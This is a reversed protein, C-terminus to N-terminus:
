RGSTIVIRTAIYENGPDNRVIVLYVGSAVKSGTYNRGDWVAQGGNARTQYVLKGSLETIKVLANDTLGRIAITGNYGPPVPNPFVLVQSNNTAGETATSRFSCIGSLTSFFVEGSVPDVAIRRVDNSFLPSNEETFRYVIKDGEPSLLWVGNKTGVWKRNAGDIAICQVIEDKFLLGAFQDLQVVPLTADCSQGNFVSSTCQVIGIGKDTCVWIFGSKDKVIYLVNNSPLNGNGSGQQYWKWKDDAANDIVPGYNYCILGNNKPCVIWLQNNDEDNIIQGAANETLPFPINFAKWAGNNKRLHLNSAAGYNSVWLNGNKDFALGSVRVSGPDGIAAQLSSNQKKYIDTTAADKFHVLGGGFSGAWLTGDTPDVAVTIFDLVSDLKPINYYGRYGWKEDAFEFVGNRNYQYNWATNVSGAAAYLHQDKFIFEGDATGLPGNPIWQETGNGTFKSLGGFQDAVWINNNDIIASSPYSIVNAQSLTKEILGNTNLQIVRAAGSVTRQCVLLKNDSASTSVIPWNKDNYLLSWNTGNYLLLSDNKEAVITGNVALVNKISGTTLGAVGSLLQWNAYNSPNPNNQAISKLGEETAAYFRNADATFANVKVQSGTNGIFWTDKIEYRNLDAIIIGLGSSLYAFGNKCFIRYVSKNGSIRSRKIDGINKVSSNKLIDLNSNTYAVVLQGTQQDWDIAQVGIDNLGNVKTFRDIENKDNIAFIASSTACYIRDSKVVQRAQQYSLHDRWEGIAPVRSQPFISACPFVVTIFLTSLFTYQNKKSLM